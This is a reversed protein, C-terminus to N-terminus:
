AGAMGPRPPPTLAAATTTATRMARSRSRRNRSAQEVQALYNTASTARATSASRSGPTTTMCSHFGQMTNFHFKVWHREGAANIFADTHLGYDNMERLGRPLGR